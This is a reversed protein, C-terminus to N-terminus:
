YKLEDHPPARQASQMFRRQSSLSSIITQSSLYQALILLECLSTLKLLILLFSKESRRKKSGFQSLVIEGYFWCFPNKKNEGVSWFFFTKAKKTIEVRRTTIRVLNSSCWTIFFADPKQDIFTKSSYANKKHGTTCDSSINFRFSEDKSKDDRLALFSSFQTVHFM